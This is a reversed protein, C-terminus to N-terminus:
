SDSTSSSRELMGNGNNKPWARPGGSAWAGKPAVQNGNVNGSDKKMGVSGHGEGSVLQKGKAITLQGIDPLEGGNLLTENGSVHSGGTLSDSDGNSGAGQSQGDGSKNEKVSDVENLGPASSKRGDTPTTRRSTPASSAAQFLSKPKNAWVSNPRSTEPVVSARYGPDKTNVDRTEASISSIDGGKSGISESSNGMGSTNEIAKSMDQHSSNRSNGKRRRSNREKGNYVNGGHGSDTGSKGGTHSAGRPAQTTGRPASPKKSRLIEAYSMTSGNGQTAAPREAAKKAPATKQMHTDHAIDSGSPSTVAPVPEVSTICAPETAEVPSLKGDASTPTVPEVKIDTQIEKDKGATGNLKESSVNQNKVAKNVENAIASPVDKQNPKAGGNPHAASTSNEGTPLLPPFNMSALNPEPKSKGDRSSRREDRHGPSNHGDAKSDYSRGDGHRDHHSHRGNNNRNGKRGKRNPPGRGSGDMGGGPGRSSGRGDGGRQMGREGRHMGGGHHHGRGGRNYMGSMHGTAMHPPAVSIATPDPIIGGRHMYHPDMPGKPMMQSPDMPPIIPMPMTTGHSITAGVPMTASVPIPASLGVPASIPVGANLPIASTVPLASCVPVHSAAYRQTDNQTMPQGTPVSADMGNPTTAKEDSGSSSNPVGPAPAPASSSNTRNSDVANQPSQVNPGSASPDGSPPATQMSPQMPAVPMQEFANPQAYVMYGQQPPPMARPNMFQRPVGVPHHSYQPVYPPYAFQHHVDHAAGPLMQVPVMMPNVPAYAPSQGESPHVYVGQPPRSYSPQPTPRPSTNTSQQLFTNEAHAQTRIKSGNIVTDAVTPLASQAGNPTDFIALWTNDVAQQVSILGPISTGNEDALLRAIDEIRTEPPIDSMILTSRTAWSPRIRANQLDVEVITSRKLAEAVRNVDQVGMRMMKPFDLIVAIDVWLDQDMHQKLYVDTELNVRGLYWEVQAAIANEMPDPTSPPRNKLQSMTLQNLSFTSLFLFTLCSTIPSPM